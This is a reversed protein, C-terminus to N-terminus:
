TNRYTHLDVILYLQLLDNVQKWKNRAYVDYHKLQIMFEKMAHTENPTLRHMFRGDVYVKDNLVSCGQLVFKTNDYRHCFSPLTPMMPRKLLENENFACIKKLEQLFAAIFYFISAEHYHKMQSKYRAEEAQENENLERIYIGHAYLRNQYVSCHSRSNWEGVSELVLVALVIR